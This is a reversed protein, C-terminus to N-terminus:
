SREPTKLAKAERIKALRAHLRARAPHNSADDGTSFPRTSSSSKTSPSREVDQTPEQPQHDTREVDDLSSASCKENENTEVEVQADRVGPLSQKGENADDDTQRPSNRRTAAIAADVAALELEM